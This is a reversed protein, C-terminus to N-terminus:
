FGTWRGFLPRGVAAGIPPTDNRVPTLLPPIGLRGITGCCSTVPRRNYGPQTPSLNCCAPGQPYPGINVPGYAASQPAAVTNGFSVPGSYAMPSSLVSEGTFASPASGFAPTPAFNPTGVVQGAAAALSQPVGAPTGFAPASIAPASITPAATPVALRSGSQACLPNNLLLAVVAFTSAALITLRM